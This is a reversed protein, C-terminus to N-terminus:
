NSLHNWNPESATNLYSHDSSWLLWMFKANIHQKKQLKYCGWCGSKLTYKRNILSKNYLKEKRSGTPRNIRSGDTLFIGGVGEEHRMQSMTKKKAM